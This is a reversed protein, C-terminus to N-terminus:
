DEALAVHGALERQLDGDTRRGALAGWARRAWERLSAFMGPPMM